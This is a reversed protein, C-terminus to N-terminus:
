SSTSCVDEEDNKELGNLYRACREMKEHWEPSMGDMVEQIKEETANAYILEKM